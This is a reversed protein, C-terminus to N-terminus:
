AFLCNKNQGDVQDRFCEDLSIYSVSLTLLLLESIQFYCLSSIELFAKNDRHKRELPIVYM